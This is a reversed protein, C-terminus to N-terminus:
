RMFDTVFVATSPTVRASLPPFVAILRASYPQM